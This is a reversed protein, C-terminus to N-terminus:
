GNQAGKRPLFTGSWGRTRSRRGPRGLRRRLDALRYVDSGDAHRGWPELKTAAAAVDASPVGLLEAAREVTAVLPVGPGSETTMAALGTRPLM